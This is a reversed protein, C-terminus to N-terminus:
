VGGSLRLRVEGEPDTSGRARRGAATLVWWDGTMQNLDRCVLRAAELVQWAESVLNMVRPDPHSSFGMVTGGVIGSPRPGAQAAIGRAVDVRSISREPEPFAHQLILIARELPSAAVFRQADADISM